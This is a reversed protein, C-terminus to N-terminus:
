APRVFIDRYGTYISTWLLPIWVLMGLGLPIVALIALGLGVLGYLLFPLINKLCGHFSAKMAAMPALDHFIVLAPAFWVAMILPLMLAMVILLVLVIVLIYPMLAAINSFDTPAAGQAIMAPIMVAVGIGAFVGILVTGVLYLVGVLILSGVNKEFGAWLHEFRLGTGEEISRCGLMLGAVVPPYVISSLLAGGPVISVLISAVFFVICILVWLGPAAVFLKWGDGYWTVGNGAPVKRGDEIYVGSSSPAELTAAKPPAYPNDSM